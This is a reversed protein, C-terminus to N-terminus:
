IMKSKVSKYLTKSLPIKKNVYLLSIKASQSNGQIEEINRLNVLYSRHCKELFSLQKHVNSLTQRFTKSHLKKDPSIFNIEIYNEVSKIWLLESKLLELKENKNEGQIIITDPAVPVIREGFKQRLYILIPAVIPIMALVIHSYYWWHSKLSYDLDNIVCHNYLFIISGSFTFFIVTSLIEYSISWTKNVRKYWYNEIISQIFFVASLLVGFGLLSVTRNDSEYENTNFPELFIILMSLFLGLLFAVLM